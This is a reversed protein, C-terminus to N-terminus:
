QQMLLSESVFPGKPDFSDVSTWLEDDDGNFFPGRRWESKKLSGPDILAM